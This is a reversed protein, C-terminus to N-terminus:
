LHSIVKLGCNLAILLSPLKDAGKGQWAPRRSSIRVVGHAPALTSINTPSSHVPISAGAESPAGMTLMATVTFYRIRTFAVARAVLGFFM